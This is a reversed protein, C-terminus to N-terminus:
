EYDQRSIDIEDISFGQPYDVSSRGVLRRGEHIYPYKSPGHITGRPSTLGRLYPLRFDPHKVSPVLQSDTTGAILWYFYGQALQEAQKLSAVRLGGRWSGPKLQGTESLQQQIYILNNRDTGPRYDNGWTWDQLSIDSPTIASSKQSKVKMVARLTGM